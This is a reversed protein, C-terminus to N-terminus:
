LIGMSHDIIAGKLRMESVAAVVDGAKQEVGKCADLVVRTRYGFALADLVTCRVCYDTALGVVLLETVGKETLYEHLGTSAGQKNDQFGSYSDVEFDTGKQIICDFRSSNLDAHFEAGNTGRVCHVPWMVQIVGFPPLINNVAFSRHNAPHWDQTGVVLNVKDMLSNVLPVIKDGDAVALSGGPCFDNQIDVVILAKM